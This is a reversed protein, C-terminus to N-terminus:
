GRHAVIECSLLEFYRKQTGALGLSQSIRKASKVTLPRKGRIMLHIVNTKSFGLDDSFQIYSYKKKKEKLARYLSKLYEKYDLYNVVNTLEKAGDLHNSESLM